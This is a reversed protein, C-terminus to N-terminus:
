NFYAKGSFAGAFTLRVSNNNLYEVEGVVVTDASDVVTVTPKKNLNHTVEWVSEPTSQTHAYHADAKSSVYGKVSIATTRTPVLVTSVAASEKVVIVPPVVPSTVDIEM